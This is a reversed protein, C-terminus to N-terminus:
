DHKRKHRIATLREVLVPHSHHYTSYWPDPNMNSLNELQLKVLGSQLPGGYGLGVAFEDAQYQLPFAPSLFTLQFFKEIHAKTVSATM